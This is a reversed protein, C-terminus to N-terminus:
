KRRRLFLAGLGLLGITIPEPLQTIVVSTLPVLNGNFLTLTVEGVGDCHFLINSVLLGTLPLPVAPPLPADNLSIMDFPNKIGMGGAMDTDDIVFFGIDGGAYNIVANTFDLTGPDGAGIGLLFIGGPEIGNIADGTISIIATDSEMLETDSVNLVLQASAMSAMALFLMVVLLKKM